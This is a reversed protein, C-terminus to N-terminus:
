RGDVMGTVDCCLTCHPASQRSDPGVRGQTLDAQLFFLYLDRIYRPYDVFTGVQYYIFPHFSKNGASDVTGTMVEM